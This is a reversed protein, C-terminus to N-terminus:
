GRHAKATEAERHATPSLLNPIDDYSEKEYYKKYDINFAVDISDKINYKEPNIYVTISNLFLASKVFPTSNKIWFL